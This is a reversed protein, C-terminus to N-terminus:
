YRATAAHSNKKLSEILEPVAQYVDATLGYDAVDFIPANRDTNIAIIKRSSKMGALHQVAGSIGLAIYWHPAVQKGTQGVQMDNPAIGSDVLARSSGTAGGLADALGGVLREFDESSEVARGGSIVVSAETVDPRSANRSAHQEITVRPDSAVGQLELPQIEAPSALPEAAAFVSPRVTVVAPWCSLRLTTVVSGAFRPVEAELEQDCRKLSTVDAIMAGDVKVAVAPLVDKAFSSSAALVLDIGEQAVTAAIAASWPAALPDALEPRDVLLVPAYRSAEGALRDLQHGAVLWHVDGGSEAAMLKGCAMARLSAPRLGAENSEAIVLVKM